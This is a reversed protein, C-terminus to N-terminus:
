NSGYALHKKRWEALTLLQSTYSDVIKIIMKDPWVYFNYYNEFREGNSYGADIIYYKKSRAPRQVIRMSIGHHRHSLSDIFRGAAKVEPLNLLKELIKNEIVINTDCVHIERKESLFSYKNKQLPKEKWSIDAFVIFLLLSIIHRVNNEM